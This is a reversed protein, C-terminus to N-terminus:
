PFSFILLCVYLDFVQNWVPDCTREVYETKFKTTNVRVQVYADVPSRIAADKYPLGKAEVVHIQVTGTFPQIQKLMKLRRQLANVRHAKWDEFSEADKFDEARWHPHKGSAFLQIEEEFAHITHQPKALGEKLATDLTLPDIYKEMIRRLPACDTKTFKNLCEEDYV